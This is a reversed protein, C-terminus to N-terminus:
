ESWQGLKPDDRDRERQGVRTESAREAGQDSDNHNDDEAARNRSERIRDLEAMM